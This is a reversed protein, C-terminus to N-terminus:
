GRVECLAAVIADHNKGAKVWTPVDELRSPLSLVFRADAAGTTICQTQECELDQGSYHSFIGAIIGSLLSEVPGEAKDVITGYIPNTVCFIILGKDQKSIDLKLRGWGHHSFAEILCGEFVALSFSSLAYGYFDSLEKELRIAFQLGWKKGATHLVADAAKGCEFQLANRLGILFDSSLSLMRTGARNRTVGRKVNTKLWDKENFFNGRFMSPMQAIGAM